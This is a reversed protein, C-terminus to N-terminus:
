LLKRKEGKLEKRVMDVQKNLMETATGRMEQPKQLNIREIAMANFKIARVIEPKIEFPLKNEIDGM